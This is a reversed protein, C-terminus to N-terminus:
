AQQIIRADRLAAACLRRLVQALSLDHQRALNHLEDHVAPLVRVQLIVSHPNPPRQKAQRRQSIKLM